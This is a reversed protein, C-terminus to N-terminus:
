KEVPLSDAPTPRAWEGRALSWDPGFYGTLKVAAPGHRLYDPAVILVDPYATGSSFIPLRDTSRMAALTTGGIVAVSATSSGPRPRVM